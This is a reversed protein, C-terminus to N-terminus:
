ALWKSNMLVVSSLTFVFFENQWSDTNVEVLATTVIFFLFVFAMSGVMRYKLPIKHGIFANLILFLTNPVAASVSLDSTFGAQIPTLEDTANNTVNRFKYM